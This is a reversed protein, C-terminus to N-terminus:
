DWGTSSTGGPCAEGSTWTSAARTHIRNAARESAVESAQTPTSLGTRPSKQRKGNPPLYFTISLVLRSVGTEARHLAEQGLAEPYCRPNCGTLALAPWASSRLLGSTSERANREERGRVTSIAKQNGWQRAREPTWDRLARRACDRPSPQM